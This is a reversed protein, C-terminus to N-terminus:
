STYSTGRKASDGDEKEPEREERSCSGFGLTTAILAHLHGNGRRHGKGDEGNANLPVDKDARATGKSYVRPSVTDTPIREARKLATSAM